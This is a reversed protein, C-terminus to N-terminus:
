HTENSPPMFAIFVIMRGLAACNRHGTNKGDRKAILRDKVGM